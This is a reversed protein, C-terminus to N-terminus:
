SADEVNNFPLDKSTEGLGAHMVERKKIGPRGKAQRGRGHSTQPRGSNDIGTSGASDEINIQNANGSIGLMNFNMPISENDIDKDEKIDWDSDDGGANKMFNGHNEVQAFSDASPQNLL